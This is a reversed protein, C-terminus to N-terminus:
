PCPPPTTLFFNKLAEPFNRCNKEPEWTAGKVPYEKWEVLYYIKKGQNCSNLIEEVKYEYEYSTVPNIVYSPLTITYKKVLSIHFVHHIKWFPLLALIYNM